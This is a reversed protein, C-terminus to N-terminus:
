MVILIFSPPRPVRGPVQQEPRTVCGGDGRPGLKLVVLAGVAENLTPPISEPVHLFNRVCSGATSVCHHLHDSLLADVAAEQGEGGAGAGVERETSGELTESEHVDKSLLAVQNM